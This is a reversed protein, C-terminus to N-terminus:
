HVEVGEDFLGQSAWPPWSSNFSLGVNTSPKRLRERLDMLGEVSMGSLNIKAM